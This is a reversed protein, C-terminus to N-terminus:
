LILQMFWRKEQLFHKEGHRTGIINIEHESKGLMNKLTNALLEVTCAPAKQVFIDGNKFAFM